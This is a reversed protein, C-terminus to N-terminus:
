RSDGLLRKVINSTSFGGVLKDSFYDHATLRRVETHAFREASEELRTLIDQSEFYVSWVDPQIFEAIAMIDDHPTASLSPEVNDHLTVADVVPLRGDQADISVSLAGWARTQWDFIPRATNGKAQNLGKRQAVSENGDVSIILRLEKQSLVGDLFQAKDPPDLDSWTPLDPTAYFREYHRPAAALKTHLLYANHNPHLNDYVGSSFVITTRDQARWSEVLANLQQSAAASELPNFVRGRMGFEFYGTITEPLLECDVYPRTESAVGEQEAQMARADM